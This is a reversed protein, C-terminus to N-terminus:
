RTVVVMLLLLCFRCCFCCSESSWYSGLVTETPVWCLRLGFLLLQAAACVLSSNSDCPEWGLFLVEAVRPPTSQTMVVGRSRTATPNHIVVLNPHPILRSNLSPFDLQSYIEGIISQFWRCWTQPFNCYVLLLQIQWLTFTNCGRCCQQVQGSTM